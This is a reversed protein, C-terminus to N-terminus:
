RLSEMSGLFLRDGDLFIAGLAIWDHVLAQLEVNEGSSGPPMRSGVPPTDCNLKEFLLSDQPRGPRVRLRTADQSSPQGQQDPGLLNLRAVDFRLNLDGFSNNIHCGACGGNANSLDLRPQIDAEFIVDYRVPVGDLPTCGSGGAAALLPACLLAPLLSWRLSM